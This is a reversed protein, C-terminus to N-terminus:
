HFFLMHSIKILGSKLKNVYNPKRIKTCKAVRIKFNSLFVFQFNFFLVFVSAFIMLGAFTMSKISENVITVGNSWDIVFWCVETCYLKASLKDNESPIYIMSVGGAKIM